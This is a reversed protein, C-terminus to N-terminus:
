IVCNFFSRIIKIVISIKHIMFPFSFNYILIAIIYGLINYNM